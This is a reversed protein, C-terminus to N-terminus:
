QLNGRDDDNRKLMDKLKQPLDNVTKELRRIRRGTLIYCIVKYIAIGYVSVIALIVLILLVNWAM